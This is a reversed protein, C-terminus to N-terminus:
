KLRAIEHICIRARPAAAAVAAEDTARQWFMQSFLREASIAVTVQPFVYWDTIGVIQDMRAKARADTPQLSPGSGIAGVYRLIAQTEYLEFDGHDIAPIRGFPHRRLHPERLHDGPAMAALTYPVSKEELALLAARVYPSGSVGHIVVPTM